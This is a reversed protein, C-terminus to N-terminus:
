FTYGLADWTLSVNEIRFTSAIPGIQTTAFTVNLDKGLLGAPVVCAVKHYGRWEHGPPESVPTLTVCTYLVQQFPTEFRVQLRDMEIPPLDPQTTVGKFRFTLRAQAAQLPISVTQFFKGSKGDHGIMAYKTGQFAVNSDNPNTGIWPFADSQWGQGGSEFSGDKILQNVQRVRFFVPAAEVIQNTLYVKAALVYNGVPMGTVARMIGFPATHATGLNGKDTWYEVKDIQNMTVGALSALELFVTNEGEDVLVKTTVAKPATYTLMVNDLRFIEKLNAGKFAFRVTITKGAYALLNHTYFRYGGSEPLDPQGAGYVGLDKNACPASCIISATVSETGTGLTSGRFWFSLQASSAGPPIGITQEISAGDAIAQAYGKSGGFGDGPNHEMNKATWNSVGNIFGGNQILDLVGVIGVATNAEGFNGNFDFIRATLGQQGPNWGHVSIRQRLSTRAQTAVTQTGRLISISMVGLDDAGTAEVLISDNSEEKALVKIAGTPKVTDNLPNVLDTGAWAQHIAKYRRDHTGWLDEAAYMWAGYLDAYSPNAPLYNATADFWVRAADNMGIGQMGNPLFQSYTASKPDSNSGLVIRMFTNGYLTGVAHVDKYALDATYYRFTPNRMRGRFVSEAVNVPLSNGM